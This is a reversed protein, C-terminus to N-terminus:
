GHQETAVRWEAEFTEAEIKEPIFEEQESIEEASPMLTESLQTSGTARTADAFDAHGDRYIEVKRVEEGNLIESLLSVPEDDFDHIWAVRLYRRM